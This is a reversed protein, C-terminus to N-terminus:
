VERRKGDPSAHRIMLSLFFLFASLGSAGRLLAYAAAMWFSLLFLLTLCRLVAEAIRPSLLVSLAVRLLRGGDMTGIPLLNFLGLYLSVEKFFLLNDALLAPLNQPFSPLMWWFLLNVLPGAAAVAFETGYSVLGTMNMRLGGFGFRFGAVPVRCLKAAFWHGWEHLLVASLVALGYDKGLLLIVSIMCGAAFYAKLRKKGIEEVGRFGGEEYLM